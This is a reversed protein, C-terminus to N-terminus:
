NRSKKSIPGDNYEEKLQKVDDEIAMIKYDNAEKYAELSAVRKDIARNAFTIDKKFETVAQTVHNVALRLEKIEDRMQIFHEAITAILKSFWFGSWKLFGWAVSLIGVWKIANPGLTKLLSEPDNFLALWDM